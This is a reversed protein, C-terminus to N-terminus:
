QRRRRNVHLPYESPVVWRICRQGLAAAINDMTQLHLIELVLDVYRVIPLVCGVSIGCHRFSGPPREHGVESAGCVVRCGPASRVRRWYDVYANCEDALSAVGGGRDRHFLAQVFHSRSTRRSQEARSQEALQEATRHESRIQTVQAAKQVDM